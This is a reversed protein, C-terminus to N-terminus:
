MLFKGHMALLQWCSKFASHAGSYYELACITSDHFVGKVFNCFFNVPIAAICINYEHLFLVFINKLSYNM